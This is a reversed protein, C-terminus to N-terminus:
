LWSSKDFLELLLFTESLVGLIIIIKKGCQFFFSFFFFSSIKGNEVGKNNKYKGKSLLPRVVNESFTVMDLNLTINSSSHLVFRLFIIKKPLLRDCSKM